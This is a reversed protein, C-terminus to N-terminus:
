SLMNASILIKDNFRKRGPGNEIKKAHLRLTKEFVTLEIKGM